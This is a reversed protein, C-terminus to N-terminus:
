NGPLKLQRVVEAAVEEATPIAEIIRLESAQVIAEVEEKTAGDTSPEPEPEIPPEIPPEVVPPLPTLDPLGDVSQNTFTSAHSWLPKTEGPLQIAFWQNTSNITKLPDLDTAHGAVTVIQGKALPVAGVAADTSPAVRRRPEVTGAKRQTAGMPTNAAAFAAFGAAQSHTVMDTFKIRAGAANFGNVHLWRYFAGASDKRFLSGDAVVLRPDTIVQGKTVHIRANEAYRVSRGLPDDKIKIVVEGYIGGVSTVTGLCGAIVVHSRGSADTNQEGPVSANDDGFEIDEGKSGPHAAWSVKITGGEAPNMIIPSAM